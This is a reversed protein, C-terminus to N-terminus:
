DNKIKWWNDSNIIKRAEKINDDDVLISYCLLMKQVKYKVGASNLLSKLESLREKIVQGALILDEEELWPLM